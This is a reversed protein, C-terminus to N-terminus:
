TISASQGAQFRIRVEVSNQRQTATSITVANRPSSGSYGIRLLELQEDPARLLERALVEGGLGVLRVEQREVRAPGLVELLEHALREVVERVQQALREVV